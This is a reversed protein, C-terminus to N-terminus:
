WRQAIAQNSPYDTGGYGGAKIWTEIQETDNKLHNIQNVKSVHHALSIIIPVGRHVSILQHIASSPDIRYAPMVVAGDGFVSFIHRM